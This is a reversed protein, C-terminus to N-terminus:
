DHGDLISGGDSTDGGYNATDGQCADEIMWLSLRRDRQASWLLRLGACGLVAFGVNWAIGLIKDGLAAGCAAIMICALGIGDKVGIGPPEAADHDSM